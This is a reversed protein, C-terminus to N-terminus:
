CAVTCSGAGRFRHRLRGKKCPQPRTSQADLNLKVLNTYPARGRDKGCEPDSPVAKEGAHSAANRDGVLM